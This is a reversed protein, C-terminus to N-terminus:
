YRLLILLVWFFYTDHTSYRLMNGLADSIKNTCTDQNNVFSHDTIWSFENDKGNKLFDFIFFHKTFKGIWVNFHIPFYLCFLSNRISEYGLFIKQKQQERNKM